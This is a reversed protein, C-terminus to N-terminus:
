DNRTGLVLCANHGGFGFSNSLATRLAAPRAQNPVYDLDCEPDPVSYNITPPILQARLAELCLAAELAGAAGLLHGHMSKTSSIPVRYAHEGFVAKIAATESKDNLRTSTGHANLYDIDAPALGADALALRMAEAAGTGDEAPASIHFADETVGYGLVEGHITAGRALAHEREELVLLAAGEAMLFGDREADFPRSARAPDHNRRSIAGMSNFGALPLPAIAAEAGGALVVDASGRRIIECGEGIANAGSACASVVCLNPGRLGFHIAVQGSATNPLMMPVCHPSVRRPGKAQLVLFNEYMTHIGGIGTGILVGVRATLHADLALRSHQLAEDAAAIAFQTFRDMRRAERPGFRAVPDFGKVEAAFHTEYDSTDFLTIPGAGSQGASCAAWTAALDLGMPTVAGMGTVVVRRKL